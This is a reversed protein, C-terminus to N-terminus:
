AYQAFRRRLAGVPDEDIRRSSFASSILNFMVKMSAIWSLVYPPPCPRTERHVKDPDLMVLYSPGASRKIVGVATRSHSGHQIYVPPVQAISCVAISSRFNSSNGTLNLTIAFYYKCARYFPRNDIGSEAALQCCVFARETVSVTGGVERWANAWTKCVDPEDEEAKGEVAQNAYSRPLFYHELWNLVGLAATQGERTEFDVLKARLNLSSLLAWAETAGELLLFFPATLSRVLQTEGQLIGNGIVAQSKRVGEPCFMARGEPDYGAKWADEILVQIGGIDPVGRPESGDLHSAPLPQECSGEGRLHL